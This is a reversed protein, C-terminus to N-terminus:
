GAWCVGGVAGTAALETTVGDAPASVGVGTGAGGTSMASDEPAQFRLAGAALTMRSSVGRSWGASGGAAVSGGAWGDGALLRRRRWMM